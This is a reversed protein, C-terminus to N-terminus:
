QAKVADTVVASFYSDKPWANWCESSTVTVTWGQSAFYARVKDAWGEHTQGHRYFFGRRFEMSGDKKNVMRDVYFGADPSDDTGDVHVLSRLARRTKADM